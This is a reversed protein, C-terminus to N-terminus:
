NLMQNDCSVEGDTTEMLSMSNVLTGLVEELSTMSSSSSSAFTSPVPEPKMQSLNPWM